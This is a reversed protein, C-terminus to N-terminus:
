EANRNNFLKPIVTNQWTVCRKETPYTLILAAGSLIYLPALVIWSLAMMGLLWTFFVVLGFCTIRSTHYSSLEFYTDNFTFNKFINFFNMAAFVTRNSMWKYGLITLLICFLYSFVTIPVVNKLNTLDDTNRFIIILLISLPITAMFIIHTVRIFLLTRRRIEEADYKSTLPIRTTDFINMAKFLVPLTFQKKKNVNNENKM